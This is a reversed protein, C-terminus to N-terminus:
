GGSDNLFNDYEHIMDTHCKALLTILMTKEQNQGATFGMGYSTQVQGKTMGTPRINEMLGKLIHDAIIVVDKIWAKQREVSLYQWDADIGMEDKAFRVFLEEALQEINIM